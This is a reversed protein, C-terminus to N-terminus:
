ITPMPVKFSLIIWAAPDPFIRLQEWNYFFASSKKARKLVEFLGRVPRVQPTYANTTTGPRSPEVSHMLSTHCPLTASPMVTDADLSYTTKKLLEQALPIDGLVDPRMGDVLILLVKMM